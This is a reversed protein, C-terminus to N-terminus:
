LSKARSTINAATENLFGWLERAETQSINRKGNPAEIFLKQLKQNTKQCYNAWAMDRSQSPATKFVDAYMFKIAEKWHENLTTKVDEPLEENNITKSQFVLKIGPRPLSQLYELSTEKLEYDPIIGEIKAEDSPSEIISATNASLKSETEKIGANCQTLLSVVLILIFIRFFNSSKSM